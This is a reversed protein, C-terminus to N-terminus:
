IEKYEGMALDGLSIDGYAIRKLYVVESGFKKVM